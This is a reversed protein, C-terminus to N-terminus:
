LKLKWKASLSALFCQRRRNYLLTKIIIITPCQVHEDPTLTWKGQFIFLFFFIFYERKWTFLWLSHHDLFWTCYLLSCNMNKCSSCVSHVRWPVTQLDLSYLLYFPLCLTLVHTKHREVARNYLKDLTIYTILVIFWSTVNFSWILYLSVIIYLTIDIEM